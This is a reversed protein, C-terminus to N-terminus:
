CEPTSVFYIVSGGRPIVAVELPISTAAYFPLGAPQGSIGEEKQVHSLGQYFCFKVEM